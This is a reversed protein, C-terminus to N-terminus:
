EFMEISYRKKIDGEEAAPLGLLPLTTSKNLLSDSINYDEDQINFTKRRILDSPGSCGIPASSDQLEEAHAKEKQMFKSIEKEFERKNISNMVMMLVKFVALIGGFESLGAFISKPAQINETMYFSYVFSLSLINDEVVNRISISDKYNVVVTSKEPEIIQHPIISNFTRFSELTM